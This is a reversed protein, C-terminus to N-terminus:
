LPAVRAPDEVYPFQLGQEPDVQFLDPVDEV